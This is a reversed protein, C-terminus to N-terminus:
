AELFFAGLRLEVSARPVVDAPVSPLKFAGHLCGLSQGPANDFNKFVLAEDPNMDSYYLWRQRRNYVSSLYPIPSPLQPEITKGVVCDAEDLTRQDCLALPIDQPPPTISRWVNFVTARAYSALAESSGALRALMPKAAARDQDLHVFQAAPPRSRDGTDRILLGSAVVLDARTVRKVLAVCHPIYTREIWQADQWHYPGVPAEFIDFGERELSPRDALNRANRIAVTHSELVQTTIEPTGNSWIGGDTRNGAFNLNVTM